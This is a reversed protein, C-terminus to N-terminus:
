KTGGPPQLLGLVAARRIRARELAFQKLRPRLGQVHDDGRIILDRLEDIKADLSQALDGVPDAVWNWVWSVLQDVILGVVVGVGLTAWSSAAGAGLIGASVGLRVAAQTLVEGAILSVLESAVDGRLSSGAALSAKRIAEDFTAQLQEPETGALVFATPFEAVDQRLRVLMMGEISRVEALYADIALKVAKELDDPRFVHEEFQQRLFTPHRDHRTFPVYDAVLRWKSSWSLARTAFVRTNQKSASFFERLRVLQEDLAKACRADAWQLHPRALKEPSPPPKPAAPPAEVAVPAVTEEVTPSSPWALACVWVVAAVAALAFWLQWPPKTM